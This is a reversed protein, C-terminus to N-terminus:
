LRDEESVSEIVDTLLGLQRETVAAGRLSIYRRAIDLPTAADFDDVSMAGARSDAPTKMAPCYLINCFRAQKGACADRATRDADLPLPAEQTVKLRVYVRRGPDLGQLEKLCSEWDGEITLVGYVPEVAIERVSPMDGRCGIEVISVTHEWVEDFSVPLLSGCYRARGGAFTQPGHIHGLAAYDYFGDGLVGPPLCDINGVTVGDSDHGTARCGSVAIHGMFVVPLGTTNRRAIEAGIETYVGGIRRASVYPVAAIFGCGPLEVIADAPDSPLSGVLYVGDRRWPTAFIDHYSANDHNGATVIIRMGPVRRRIADIKEVFLRRAKGSPMYSHFIDGSVLMADPREAEAIAAIRYIAAAHEDLRDYDFFTHGIHWDSTHLIKM